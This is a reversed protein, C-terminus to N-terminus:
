LGFSFLLDIFDTARINQAYQLVDINFDGTVILNNCSNLNDLINSILDSFETFLALPTLTPHTAGPCYVSGITYCTKNPLAV